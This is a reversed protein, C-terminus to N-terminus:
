LYKSIKSTSIVTVVEAVNGAVEYIVMLLHRVGTRPHYIKKVLFRHRDTRDFELRDPYTIALRIDEVKLGRERMRMRAHSSLIIRM